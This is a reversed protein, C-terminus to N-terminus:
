GLQRKCVRGDDGDRHALQIGIRQIDADVIKGRRLLHRVIQKPETVAADAQDLSVGFVDCARLALSAESGGDLLSAQARPVDKDFLAIEGEAGAEVGSLAQEVIRM